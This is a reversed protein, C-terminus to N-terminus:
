RSSVAAVLRKRVAIRLPEPVNRDVSLGQLDRDNLRAILNLSLAVPTKPNKVLGVVIGYNKMWVRNSAIIRLVDESVNAMRAFAEVESDTVKPSSLVSVSILRNPDRILLGRMERSGKVAAKLRDTFTMSTLQQVLSERKAPATSEDGTERDPNRELQTEVDEMGSDAGVLPTEGDPAPTTSPSVGRAAFFLRVSEPVDARALFDALARGPIQSLTREAEERLAGDADEALLILLALQEHRRVPLQGQAAALKVEPPAEGRKFCDLLPTATNV